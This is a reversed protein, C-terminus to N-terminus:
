KKYGDILVQKMNESAGINDNSILERDRIKARKAALPDKGAILDDMTKKLEQESSVIYCGSLMALMQDTYDIEENYTLYIIPNGTVFYEIMMSSYDCVLVSSNWFTAQYEKETDVRINKRAFCSDKYDRVEDATMIGHNVFNEFMLPHPRVLIDINPHEDAIQFFTNKYDLFSSGGWTPDTTWRPAYIARFDNSSFDWAKTEDNQAKYANEVAPIGCCIANSFKLTCLIRNCRGFQNKIGASEAFFCFTNAAFPKDFMAEEVRLLATGYIILCIKAYTSVVASTYQVPMPRDYRNYIVYDPHWGRLDLWENRGMLANVADEYGHGRFYEYTDNSLDDPDRLQNASIRNPVCLLMVDFRDDKKLNEYLQKNKSWAPIYQCIFVVKIIGHNIRENDRQAFRRRIHRHLSSLENKRRKWWRVSKTLFPVASKIRERDLGFM